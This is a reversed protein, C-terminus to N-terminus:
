EKDVAKLRERETEEKLRAKYRETDQKDENIVTAMYSAGLGVLAMIAISFPDV